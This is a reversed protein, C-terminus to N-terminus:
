LGQTIKRIATTGDESVYLSGDPAVVIGIPFNFQAATLAGDAYGIVGSGAYTTVVRNPAIKRIRRNDTDAVWVNGYTDVSISYPYAFQANTGTADVYGACLCSGDALCNCTRTYDIWYALSSCKVSTAFSLHSRVMVAAAQLGFPELCRIVHNHPCRCKYEGAFTTVVGAQTVLRINNNDHDAVYLNDSSDISLGMPYGFKANTGVGDVYGDDSSTSGQV